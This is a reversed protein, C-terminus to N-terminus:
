ELLDFIMKAAVLWLVVGIMRKLQTGSAKTKM